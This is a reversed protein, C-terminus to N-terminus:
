LGVAAFPPARRLVEAVCRNEASCLEPDSELMAFVDFRAQELCVADRMPDAVGLSLYGSQEIGAIQGPGRLKL